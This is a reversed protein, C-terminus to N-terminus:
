RPYIRKFQTGFGAGFRRYDLEWLGYADEPLIKHGLWLRWIKGFIKFQFRVNGYGGQWTLTTFRYRDDDLITYQPILDVENGNFDLIKGFVKFRVEEPKIKVTLWSIFRLNNSPNRYASWYIIRFWLPKDKFEEAGALGDEQNGWIFFLRSKWSLIERGNIISIEKKTTYRNLLALPPVVLWGVIITITNFIFIVTWMVIFYLLRLM